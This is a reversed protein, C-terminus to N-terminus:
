RRVRGPELGGTHLIKEQLRAAEEDVFAMVAELRATQEEYLEGPFDDGEAHRLSGRLAEMERVAKEAARRLRNLAKRAESVAADTM